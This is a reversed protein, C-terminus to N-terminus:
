KCVDPHHNHKCWEPSTVSGMYEYVAETTDTLNWEPEWSTEASSDSDDVAEWEIHWEVYGDEHVRRGIV